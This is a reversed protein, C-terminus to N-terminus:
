SEELSLMLEVVMRLGRGIGFGGIMQRM